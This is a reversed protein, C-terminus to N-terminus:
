DECKDGILGEFTAVASGTVTVKDGKQLTVDGEVLGTPAAAAETSNRVSKRLGSMVQTAHHGPM